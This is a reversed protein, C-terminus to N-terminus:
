HCFGKILKAKYLLNAVIEMQCMLAIEHFFTMRENPTTKLMPSLSEYNDSTFPISTKITFTTADDTVFSITRCISPTLCLTSSFPRLLNSSFSFFSSSSSSLRSLAM